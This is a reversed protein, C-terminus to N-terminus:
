YATAAEVAAVVEDWTEFKRWHLGGEQLIEFIRMKKMQIRLHERVYDALREFTWSNYPLGL